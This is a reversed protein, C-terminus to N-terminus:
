SIARQNNTNEGNQQKLQEIEEPTFFKSYKDELTIPKSEKKESSKEKIYQLTNLLNSKWNKIEKDNGNKWDNEVWSDYKLKLSDVCINEKKELAYNKFDEFNPIINKKSKNLKNYEEISQPNVPVTSKSKPPKHTSKCDIIRGKSKLLLLLSDINVCENNRKKYADSINEIFKENFLINYNEWLEKNFENFEVLIEIIERLVSESVMCESSLYMLQIKDSLDLYHYESKGLQELLIFWVAYGDNKFKSRLYFMKRGHIVSHPFYDINNREKRAMNHYNKLTVYWVYYKYTKM